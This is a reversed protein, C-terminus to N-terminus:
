WIAFNRAPIAREAARCLWTNEQESKAYAFLLDCSPEEATVADFDGKGQPLDTTMLCLSLNSKRCVRQVYKVASAALRDFDGCKGVYCHVRVYREALERVALSLTREIRVPEAPPLIADGAFVVHLEKM